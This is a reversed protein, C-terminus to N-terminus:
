CTAGTSRNGVSRHSVIMASLGVVANSAARRATGAIFRWPHLRIMEVAEAWAGVAQRELSGMDDGLM